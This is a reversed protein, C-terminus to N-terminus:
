LRDSVTLKAGAALTLTYKIGTLNLITDIHESFGM